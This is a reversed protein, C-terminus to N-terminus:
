QEEQFLDKLTSNANIVMTPILIKEGSFFRVVIGDRHPYYDIDHGQSKKQIQELYKYSRELLTQM